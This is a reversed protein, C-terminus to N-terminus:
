ISRMNPSTGAGVMAGRSFREFREFRKFRKFRM